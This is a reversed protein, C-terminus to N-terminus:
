PKPEKPKQFEGHFTEYRGIAEEVQRRASAPPSELLTPTILILGESEVDEGERSRFLFGLLPIDGFFPVKQDRQSKAAHDLGGLLLSQGLGLHVLTSLRALTRGPVGNVAETLDSMEAQVELDAAGRTGDVRPLVSLTAGYPITRLEAAMSGEVAVNVEGGAMYSAKVGSTTVLTTHRRVKAWGSAAMMDLYPLAQGVVQYTASPGGGGIDYDLSLAQTDGVRGPWHMGTVYSSRRSLEVFHLDIRVNARKKIHNPDLAVLSTVQDGYIRSIRDVKELDEESSVRGRLFFRPGVQKVEIADDGGLLDSIERAVAEPPRSFVHIPISWQRSGTGILLLSTTGPMIATIVMRAGDRPIKVEIIGPKAESFSEIGQADLVRQEGVVMSIEEIRTPDEVKDPQRGATSMVTLVVILALIRCTVPHDAM